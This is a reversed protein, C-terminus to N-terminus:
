VTFVARSSKDTTEKIVILDADAYFNVSTKVIYQINRSMTNQLVFIDTKCPSFM